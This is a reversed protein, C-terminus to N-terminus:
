LRLQERGMLGAELYEPGHTHRRGRAATVMGTLRTWGGAPESTISSDFPTSDTTM